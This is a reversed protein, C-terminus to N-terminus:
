LLLQFLKEDGACHAKLKEVWADTKIKFMLPPYGNKLPLAKCVVGEFTIGPLTGSRIQDEIPHTMSGHYLLKAIELHGFLDVFEKPRLIGKKYIDVDILSVRHSEQVHKGAFSSPGWFEFFATVKDWRQKTFVEVLSDEWSLMLDEAEELYPQDSGILRRRSGFKGFGGKRTWEARVNSGDLKDFMYVPLGYHITRPISVYQKM